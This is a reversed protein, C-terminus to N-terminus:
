VLIGELVNVKKEGIIMFAPVRPTLAVRLEDVKLGKSLMEAEKMNISKGVVHKKFLRYWLKKILLPFATEGVFYKIREESCDKDVEIIFMKGGPKLVRASEELAKRKDTIHKLVGVSMVFDFSEDPFPLNEANARLFYIKDSLNKIRQNARKLQDKSQDIGYLKFTPNRLYLDHLLSGSGCGIDLMKSGNALNDILFVEDYLLQNQKQIAPSIYRDYLYSSLSSYPVTPNFLTKISFM